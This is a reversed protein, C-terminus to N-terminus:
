RGVIGAAPKDQRMTTNLGSPTVHFVLTSMLSTCLRGRSRGFLVILTMHCALNAAPSSVSRRDFVRRPLLRLCPLDNRRLAAHLCIPPRFQFISHFKLLPFTLDFSLSPLSVGVPRKGGSSAHLGRRVQDGTNVCGQVDEGM